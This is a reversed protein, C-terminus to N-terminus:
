LTLEEHEEFADTLGISPIDGMEANIKKTDGKYYVKIEQHAPEIEPLGKHYVLVEQHCRTMKRNRMNREARLSAGALSNILVLENYLTMGERQFIRTIDGCIDYYAGDTKNRVNSMVIVAFRNQKLAKIGATFANDIIKLFGQYDQNSADRPDDSYHELDFYPPCSFMLDQTEPKVYKGINQGDDNYYKATMGKVRENNEDAQEKRLETGIFNNGCYASVFGFVTDGAFPDFTNNGTSGAPTFWKLIIESLCPDLVSVGGGHMSGALQRSVWSKSNIDKYLTGERTEGKDGILTTWARKRDQWYGQRSDLVTFPPIIFTEQLDLSAKDSPNVDPISVGWEDLQIADWENALIDMDWEGNNVNDRIIIEREREETLGKITITPVQEIGLAKAAKYRQNGALIVLEGTRNSLIIPRAEFYDPNDKISEKLKEFQDKKITRPNGPLEKLDKLPRYEVVAKPKTM